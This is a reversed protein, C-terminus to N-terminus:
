SSQTLGRRNRVRLLYCLLHDCQIHFKGYEFSEDKTDFLAQLHTTEFSISIGDNAREANLVALTGGNSDFERGLYTVNDRDEIVM